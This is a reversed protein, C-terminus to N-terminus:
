KVVAEPELSNSPPINNLHDSLAAIAQQVAESADAVVASDRLRMVHFQDNMNSAYIATLSHETLNHLLYPYEEKNHYAVAKLITLTTMERGEIKLVGDSIGATQVTQIARGSLQEAQEM